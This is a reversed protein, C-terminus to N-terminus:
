ETTDYQLKLFADVEAILETVLRGEFQKHVSFVSGDWDLDPLYGTYVIRDDDGVRFKGEFVNKVVWCPGAVSQCHDKYALFLLWREGAKMVPVGGMAIEAPEGYEGPEIKSRGAHMGGPESIAMEEGQKVNGKLVEEVRLMVITGAVDRYPDYQISTVTGLVM